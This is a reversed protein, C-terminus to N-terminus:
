SQHQHHSDGGHNVQQSQPSVSGHDGSVTATVQYQKSAFTVVVTHDVQVNTIQYPSSPSQVPQGNDTITSIEYGTDPYINITATGGHGVQQSQPSVSGHDGSVSSSITYQIVAFQAWDDQDETIYSLTKIPNSGGSWWGTFDYGTNAIANLTV